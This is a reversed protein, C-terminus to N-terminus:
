GAHTRHHIVQRWIKIVRHMEQITFPINESYYIAFCCSLLDFQNSPFNFPKNFNLEVFKVPNNFKKNEEIAQGLLETSVDGGTIDCDGKLIILTLFANSGQAAVSM